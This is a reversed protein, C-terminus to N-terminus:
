ASRRKANNLNLMPCGKESLRDSVEDVILTHRLCLFEIEFIGSGDEVVFVPFIRAAMSSPM